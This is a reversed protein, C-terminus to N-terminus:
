AARTHTLNDDLGFSPKHCKGRAIGGNPELSLLLPDTLLPAPKLLRVSRSLMGSGVDARPHSCAALRGICSCKVVTVVVAECICCYM